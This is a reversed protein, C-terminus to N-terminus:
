INLDTKAQVVLTPVNSSHPKISCVFPYRVFGNLFGYEKNLDDGHKDRLTLVDFASVLTAAILWYSTEALSKGPCARRGFGFIIEFPDLLDNKSLYREPYFDNPRDCTRLICYINSIVTSGGPILHNQYIDDEMLRHPFGLPITPNWRIVEKVVCELYPLSSRDDFTPLRELGVVRHMEEQAKKFVEPFQVMALTFGHTTGVTFGSLLTGASGKIDEEDDLSLKGDDTVHQELLSTTYCPPATGARFSEWLEKFPVEIMEEVAQRVKLAKIKFGSFPMWLPIHRLAPFFDVLNASPTAAEVTLTGARTSLQVYVDDVSTVERGFVLKLVISSVFRRYHDLYRDPEQLLSEILYVREKEQMERFVSAAQPNFITNIFKRHKRFRPGYHVHTSASKWGMLESLLVFRPRDSYISSRQELLDKAAQLSNLVIMHSSFIQLHLVDGHESGWEMFKDELNHGPLQRVNGILPAPKPGPPYPPKKHSTKNLICVIAIALFIAMCANMSLPWQLLHDRIVAYMNDLVSPFFSM